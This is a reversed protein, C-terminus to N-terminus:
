SRGNLAEEFRRGSGIAWETQSAGGTQSGDRWRKAADARRARCADATQSRSQRGPPGTQRRSKCVLSGNCPSACGGGPAHALGAPDSAGVGSNQFPEGSSGAAHGAHQGATVDNATAVPGRPALPHRTWTTGHAPRSRDHALRSPFAGARSTGGPRGCCIESNKALAIDGGGGVASATAM